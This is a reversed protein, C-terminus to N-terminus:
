EDEQPFEKLFGELGDATQSNGIGKERIYQKARM